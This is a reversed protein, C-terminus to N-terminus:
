VIQALIYTSSCSHVQYMTGIPLVISYTRYTTSERVRERVRESELLKTSNPSLQGTILQQQQILPLCLSGKCCDCVLWQLM